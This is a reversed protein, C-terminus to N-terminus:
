GTSSSPSRSCSARPRRGPRRRGAAGAAPRDRSGGRARPRSRRRHGAPARGHGHERRGRARLAGGLVAPPLPRARRPDGARRERQGLFHVADAVGLERVLRELSELFAHNDHRVGSAASHSRGWWRRPPRRSGRRAARRADQDVHGPGELAHDPRRPRAPAGRARPRAARAAGRRRVVRPDFRDHDISNYVRVAFPRGLVEDLRAATYDSNAVVAEASRSSCRRITRGVREPASARPRAGRVAGSGATERHGGHARSPRTRM